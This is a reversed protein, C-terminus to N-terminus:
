RIERKDWDYGLSDYAIRGEDAPDYERSTIYFLHAPGQLVKLGHAIGPPIVLVQAPQNDGLLLEVPRENDGPAVPNSPYCKGDTDIEMKVRRCDVLVAKISGVPCYWFDWQRSHIHFAKIVGTVMMSHSWQGFECESSKLIERFFGRDDTHTTLPILRVGDIMADGWAAPNDL